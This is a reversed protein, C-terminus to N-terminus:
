KTQQHYAAELFAHLDDASGSPNCLIWKTEGIVTPRENCLAPYIQRIEHGNLLPRAFTKLSIAQSVNPISLPFAFHNCAGLVTEVAKSVAQSELLFVKKVEEQLEQKDVRDASQRGMVLEGSEVGDILKLTSSLYLIIEDLVDTEKWDKGCLRNWVRDLVIQIASWYLAAPFLTESDKVALGLELQYLGAYYEGGRVTSLLAPITQMPQMFDVERISSSQSQEALLRQLLVKIRNGHTQTGHIQAYDKMSIKLWDKFIYESALKTRRSDNPLFRWSVFSSSLLALLTNRRLDDSTMIGTGLTSMSLVHQEQGKKKSKKITNSQVIVNDQSFAHALLVALAGKRYVVNFDLQGNQLGQETNYTKNDQSDGRLPFPPCRFINELLGMVHMLYIARHPDRGDLMLRLENYVREQSVKVLLAQHVEEAQCAQFLDSAIAFGFRCAFRISRLARLPDDRLTVLAALPTRILRHKLDYLGKGTWDEVSRSHLNYFLANITLDRRFADEEPTGISITPIRSDTQYSETRLNVFDVSHQGFRATVTELHKSKDPNQQIIGIRVSLMGREAIWQNLMMAFQKGTMDDLAIDIDMKHHGGILKDRVWGGAVRITTSLKREECFRLFLKFLEEEEPLLSLKVPKSTTTHNGSGMTASTSVTATASIRSPSRTSGPRSGPISKDSEVQHHQHKRPHAPSLRWSNRATSTLFCSLQQRIIRRPLSPLSLIM